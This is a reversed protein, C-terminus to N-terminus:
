FAATTARPFWNLALEILRSRGLGKDRHQKNLHDLASTKIDIYFWKQTVIICRVQQGGHHFRPPVTSRDRDTRRDTQGNTWKDMWKNTRYDCAIKVLSLHIIRRAISIRCKCIIPGLRSSYIIQFKNTVHLIVIPGLPPVADNTPSSM